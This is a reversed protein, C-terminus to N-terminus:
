MGVDLDLAIRYAVLPLLASILVFPAQMARFSNGLVITGLWGLISALPMWYLYGPHVVQNPPDLYNWVFREVLGRGLALERAGTAYYYTDTYGPQELLWATLLRVALALALLWLWTRQHRASDQGSHHSKAELVTATPPVKGSVPKSQRTSM